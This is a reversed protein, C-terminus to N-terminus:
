KELGPLEAQAGSSVSSSGELERLNESKEDSAGPKPFGRTPRTTAGCSTCDSFGDPAYWVQRAQCRLCLWRSKRARGRVVGDGAEGPFMKSLDDDSAERLGAAAQGVQYRGHRWPKRPM